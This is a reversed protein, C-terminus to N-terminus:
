RPAGREGAECSSQCPCDGKTNLGGCSGKIERGSVMVGVAMASVALMMVTFVVLFTTM